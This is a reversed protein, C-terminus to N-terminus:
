SMWVKVFRTLQEEFESTKNINRVPFDQFWMAQGVSEWDHKSLNASSVIVRVKGQQLDNILYVLVMNLYVMPFTVDPDYELISIKAHFTCNEM